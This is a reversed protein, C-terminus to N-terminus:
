FRGRLEVSGPGFRATVADEESGITAIGWIVGGAVALGGAVFFVDALIAMTEAQSHLDVADVMVPAAAAQGDLDQSVVGFAAGGGIMALGVGAVIWGIPDITVGGGSPPPPEVTPATTESNSDARALRDRQERLTVLRREVAGRDPASGAEALYREYTEVAGDLDGMGELARALNFLLTPDAHLEYARRLLAAAEAFSGENYLHESEEFLLVARQLQEPDEQASALRATALVLVFTPLFLGWPRM